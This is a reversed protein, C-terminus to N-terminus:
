PLVRTGAMLSCCHPTLTHMAPSRSVLELDCGHDLLALVSSDRNKHAAAHIPAAGYKTRLTPDAGARLLATVCPSHGEQCHEHFTNM